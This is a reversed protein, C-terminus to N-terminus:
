KQTKINVLHGSYNGEPVKEKQWRSLETLKNVDLNTEYGMRELMYALDETATNGSAGPAFPCGGLGGLTSQVKQVGCEIAALTNVIGMNRTDHIHVQLECDPMAELLRRVTERVQRPDAIGITDAVNISHVGYDFHIKKVFEVVTDVEPIGEFPCGFVTSIGVTMTLGPYTEKIRALEEFSQEHTRNLNKLNFTESVSMAFAVHTVGNEWALRAGHLNPVLAYADVNPYKGQVYEVIEKADSMQPVAKPHVFSTVELEKVGAEILGDIVRKKVETPIWTDINQFGDRPGVEVINIKKTAM